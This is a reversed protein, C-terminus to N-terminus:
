QTPEENLAGQYRRLDNAHVFYLGKRGFQELRMPLQGADIATLLLDPTFGLMEAVDALKVWLPSTALEAQERATTPAYPLPTRM